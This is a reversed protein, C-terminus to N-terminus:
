CIYFLTNIFEVNSSIDLYTNFYIIYYSINTCHTMHNICKNVRQALLHREKTIPLAWHANIYITRQRQTFAIKFMILLSIHKILKRLLDQQNLQIEVGIFEKCKIYLSCAMKFVKYYLPSAKKTCLQMWFSVYWGQM